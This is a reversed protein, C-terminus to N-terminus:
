TIFVPPPSSDRDRPIDGISSPVKRNHTYGFNVPFYAHKVALNGVIMNLCKVKYYTYSKQVNKDLKLHHLYKVNDLYQIIQIEAYFGLRDCFLHVCFGSM